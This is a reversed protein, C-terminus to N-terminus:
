HLQSHRPQPNHNETSCTPLVLSQSGSIVIAMLVSPVSPPSDDTFQTTTFTSDESMFSSGYQVNSIVRFHYTTEPSLGTLLVRHDFVLSPDLASTSGYSETPGYEVRSDSLESNRWIIEASDHTIAEVSTAPPTPPILGLCM